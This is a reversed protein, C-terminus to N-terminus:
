TEAKLDGGEDKLDGGEDKLDGGEDREESKTGTSECAGKQLAFLRSGVSM